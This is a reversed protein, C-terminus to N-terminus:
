QHMRQSKSSNKPTTNVVQTSLMRRRNLGNKNAVMSSLLLSCKRCLPVCTTWSTGSSYLSIPWFYSRQWAQLCTVTSSSMKRVGPPICLVQAESLRERDLTSATDFEYRIQIYLTPLATIRASKDTSSITHLM